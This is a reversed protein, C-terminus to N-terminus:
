GTPLKLMNLVQSRVGISYSTRKIFQLKANSYANQKYRMRKKEVVHGRQKRQHGNYRFVYM